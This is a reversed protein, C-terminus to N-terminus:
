TKLFYFSSPGVRVNEGLESAGLVTLATRAQPPQSILCGQWSADSRTLVVIGQRGLRSRTGGTGSSRSLVRSVPGGGCGGLRLPNGESSM